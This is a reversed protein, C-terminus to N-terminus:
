ALLIPNLICYQQLGDMSALHTQSNDLDFLISAPLGQCPIPQHIYYPAKSGGFRGFPTVSKPPMRKIYTDETTVSVLHKRSTSYLSICLMGIGECRVYDRQFGFHVRRHYIGEIQWVTPYFTCATDTREKPTSPILVLRSGV